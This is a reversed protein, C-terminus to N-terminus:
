ILNSKCQRTGKRTSSFNLRRYGPPGHGLLRPEGATAGAVDMLSPDYLIAVIDESPNDSRPNVYVNIDVLTASMDVAPSVSGNSTVWRTRLVQM